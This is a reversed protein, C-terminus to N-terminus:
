IGKPKIEDISTRAQWRKIYDRVTRPNVNIKRSIEEANTLGKEFLETVQKYIEVSEEVQSKSAMSSQRKTATPKFSASKSASRKPM